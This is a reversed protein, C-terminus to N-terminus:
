NLSNGAKLTQVKGDKVGFRVVDFKESINNEEPDTGTVNMEYTPTVYENGQSRINGSSFYSVEPFQNHICPKDIGQCKRPSIKDM